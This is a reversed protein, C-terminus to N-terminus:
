TDEATRLSQPLRDALNEVQEVISPAAFFGILTFFGVTALLVAGLGWGVAVNLRGAVWEAVGRLLVGVLVAAFALLLVSMSYWLFLSLAAVGVAIGTAILARRAFSREGPTTAPAAIGRPAARDPADTTPLSHDTM